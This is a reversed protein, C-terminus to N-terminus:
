EADRKALRKSAQELDAEFHVNTCDDVIMVKKRAEDTDLYHRSLIYHSGNKTGDAETSALHDAKEDFFIQLAEDITVDRDPHDPQLGVLTDVDDKEDMHALAHRYVEIIPTEGGLEEPRRIVPVGQEKAFAEIADSDTSVYIKDARVSQRAQEISYELMPKGNILCMNKNPLRTSGGKAPIVIVIM